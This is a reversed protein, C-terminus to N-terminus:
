KIITCNEARNKSKLNFHKIFFKQNFQKELIKANSKTNFNHAKHNQLINRNIQILKVLPLLTADM